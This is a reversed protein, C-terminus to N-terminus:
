ILPSANEHHFFQLAFAQTIQTAKFVIFFNIFLSQNEAPEPKIGTIM